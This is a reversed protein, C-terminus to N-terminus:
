DACDIMHSNFHAHWQGEKGVGMMLVPHFDGPAPNDFGDLVKKGHPVPLTLDGATIQDMQQATLEIPEDAFVPASLMVAVAITSFFQTRMSKEGGPNLYVFACDM